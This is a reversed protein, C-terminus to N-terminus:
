LGAFPFRKGGSQHIPSLSVSASTRADESSEGAEAGQRMLWAGEAKVNIGM